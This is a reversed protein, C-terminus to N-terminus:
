YHQGSYRTEFTFKQSMANLTNVGEEEEGEKRVDGGSKERGRRGRRRM